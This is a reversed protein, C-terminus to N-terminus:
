KRMRALLNQYIERFNGDRSSKKDKLEALLTEVEEPDSIEALTSMGSDSIGVLLLRNFFRVLAVSRKQGLHYQRLMQFEPGSQTSSMPGSVFKRLLHLFLILLGIVILVYSVNRASFVTTPAQEPLDLPHVSGQRALRGIVSN